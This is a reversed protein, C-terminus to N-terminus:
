PVMCKCMFTMFKSVRRARSVHVCLEADAGSVRNWATRVVVVVVMSMISMMSMMARMMMMM